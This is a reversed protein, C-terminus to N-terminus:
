LMPWWSTASEVDMELGKKRAKEMMEKINEASKIGSPCVETCMGCQVCDFLGSFVAQEIRDSKDEGDIHRLYIEQMAGPGAFSGWKKFDNLAQCATYCCMCERCANIPYIVDEWFNTNIPKLVDKPGLTKITHNSNIFRTYATHKDVVLDRIVPFSSLPEFRHRGTLETLCALKPKGDVIIACRGCTGRRCNYDYAIPEIYRHIYHLAKLATMPAFDPDDPVEYKKEYPQKDTSPDFRKITITYITPM